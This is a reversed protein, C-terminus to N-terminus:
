NSTNECVWEASRQLGELKTRTLPTSATLSLFDERTQMALVKRTDIFEGVGGSLFEQHKTLKQRQFNHPCVEQCVDCGFIRDGTKAILEEQLVSPREITLYSICRTSDVV